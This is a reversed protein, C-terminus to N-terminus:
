MIFYPHFNFLAAVTVPTEARIYLDARVSTYMARIGPEFKLSLASKDFFIKKINNQSMEVTKEEHSLLTKRFSGSRNVFKKM